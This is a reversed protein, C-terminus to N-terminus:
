DEYGNPNNSQWRWSDECMERIGNEATWGLEKRQRPLMATAPLLIAQVVHNSRM